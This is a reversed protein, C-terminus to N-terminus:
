SPSLLSAGSRRRYRLVGLGLLGATAASAGFLWRPGAVSALAGGIVFAIVFAASEMADRLGYIRGQIAAPVLKALLRQESTVLLGAFYGSLAFTLCAGALTPAVATLALAVVSGAAGRLMTDIETRALASGITSGVGFLGVLLAFGAEGANLPGSALLPEGINIMAFCLTSGVGVIVVLPLDVVARIDRLGARVSRDEPPAGSRSTASALARGRDLPLGAVVAASVLFSVANILLLAQTTSALLVVAAVIPGATEALSRCFALAGMAEDARDGALSPLAAKSAPMFMTHALGALLALGLTLGFSGSFALGAFAAGRVLESGVVLVRRSYRDAIAGFTNGLLITPVFEAMLVLTVAWPSRFQEYAMLLLAVYGIADGLSSQTAVLLFRQVPGRTRLLSLVRGVM